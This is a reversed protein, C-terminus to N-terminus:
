PLDDLPGTYRVIGIVLLDNGYAWCELDTTQGKVLHLIILISAVVSNALVQVHTRAQEGGSAGSSSITLHAKM